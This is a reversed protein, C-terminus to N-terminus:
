GRCTLAIISTKFILVLLWRSDPPPPLVPIQVLNQSTHTYHTAPTTFSDFSEKDFVAAEQSATGGLDGRVSIGV